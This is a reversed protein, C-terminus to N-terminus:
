YGTDGVVKTRGCYVHNYGNYVADAYWPATPLGATICSTGNPYNHTQPFLSSELHSRLYFKESDALYQYERGLEDGSASLGRFLPDTPMIKLYTPVLATTMCDSTGTIYIFANTNCPLANNTDYYLMIAKRIADLDSARRGDRARKRATNMSALVVSSLLGIIAIVVLLEILTFGRSARKSYKM